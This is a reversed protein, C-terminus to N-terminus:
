WAIKRKFFANISIVLYWFSYFFNFFPYYPNALPMNLLKGKKAFIIWEPVIKV